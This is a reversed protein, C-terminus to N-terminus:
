VSSTSASHFRTVPHHAGLVGVHGAVIGPSDLLGAEIRQLRLALEEVIAPKQTQRAALRLARSADIRMEARRQREIM